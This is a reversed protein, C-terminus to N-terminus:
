ASVGAYPHRWPGAAPATDLPRAVLRTRGRQAAELQGTALLRQVAKQVTKLPRNLRAALADATEFDDGIVDLVRAATDLYGVGRYPTARLKATPMWHPVHRSGRGSREVLRVESCVWGFRSLSVLCWRMTQKTVGLEAALSAVTRGDGVRILAAAKATTTM